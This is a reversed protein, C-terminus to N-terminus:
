GVPRDGSAAGSLLAVVAEGAHEEGDGDGGDRLDSGRVPDGARWLEGVAGTGGREARRAGGPGVLLEDADDSRLRGLFDLSQDLWADLDAASREALFRDVWGEVQPGLFAGALALPGGQAEVQARVEPLVLDRLQTLKEKSDM